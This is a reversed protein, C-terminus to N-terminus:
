VPVGGPGKPRVTGDHNTTSKWSRVKVQGAFPSGSIAYPRAGAPSTGMATICMASAM